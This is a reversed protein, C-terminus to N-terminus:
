SENKGTIGVNGSECGGVVLYKACIPKQRHNPVLNMQEENKAPLMAKCKPNPVEHNDVGVNTQQGHKAAHNQGTKSEDLIQQVSPPLSIGISKRTLISNVEVGFNLIEFDFNDIYHEQTCFKFFLQSKINIAQMLLAIFKNNFTPVPKFAGKKNNTV